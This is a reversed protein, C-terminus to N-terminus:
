DQGISKLVRDLARGQQSLGAPASKVMNYYAEPDYTTVGLHLKDATLTGVAALISFHAIQENIEAEIRSARADLLEQEANLVDLTTRAGLTAEERVGDFAITAADVQANSAQLSARAVDLGAYAYAVAQDISHRAYHKNAHEAELRAVAQRKQSAIQGGSYITGRATLGLSQTTDAGDTDTKSVGANLVVSPMLGLRAAEVQMKAITIAHDIQKLTPHNARAMGMARDMNAPINAGAQPAVLQGPAHGVANIYEAKKRALDGQAAALAAQAAALRAQALAVDTRTIEGVEFRDNAASLEQEILRVNAQRLAAMESSLRYNYFANTAALLVDQEISILRQRTALVTEKVIAQNLKSRGFDFLLWELAVGATATNPDFTSASSYNYSLSWTVVPRLLRQAQAFDEDAARLLARNQILLGSHNYASRLADKLTEAWSATPGAMALGSIMAAFGIRKLFAM